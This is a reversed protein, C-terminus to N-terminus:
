RCARRRSRRSPRFQTPETSASGRLWGPAAVVSRARPRPSQTGCRCKLREQRTDMGPCRTTWHNGTGRPKRKSRTTTGSSGGFPDCMVLKHWRTPRSLMLTRKVSGDNRHPRSPVRWMPSEIRPNPIRTGPPACWKVQAYLQCAIRRKDNHPVHSDRRHSVNLRPRQAPQGPSGLAPVNDQRM